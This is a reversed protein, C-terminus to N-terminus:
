CGAQCYTALLDYHKGSRDGTQGRGLHQVMAGQLAARAPAAARRSTAFQPWSSLPRLSCLSEPGELVRFESTIRTDAIALRPIGAHRINLTAGPKTFREMWHVSWPEIRCVRSLVGGEVSYKWWGGTAPDSM